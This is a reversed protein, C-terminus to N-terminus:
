TERISAAIFTQKQDVLKMDQCVDEFYALETLHSKNTIHVAALSAFKDEEEDDDDDEEAPLACQCGVVFYDSQSSSNSVWHIFNFHTMLDISYDHIAYVETLDPNLIVISTQQVMALTNSYPCWDIDACGKFQKSHIKSSSDFCDAYVSVNDHDDRVVIHYNQFKSFKCLEIKSSHQISKQSSGNTSNSAALPIDYVFLNNKTFCLLKLEDFSLDVGLIPESVNCIMQANFEKSLELQHVSTM